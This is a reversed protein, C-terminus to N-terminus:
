CCLAGGRRYYGQGMWRRGRRPGQDVVALGVVVTVKALMRMTMGFRRGMMRAAPGERMLITEAMTECRLVM